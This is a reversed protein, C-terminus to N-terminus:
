NIEIGVFGQDLDTTRFFRRYNNSNITYPSFVQNTDDDIAFHPDAVLDKARKWVFQGGRQPSVRAQSILWYKFNDTYFISANCAPFETDVFRNDSSHSAQIRTFNQTPSFDEIRQTKIKKNQKNPSPSFIIQFFFFFLCNILLVKIMSEFADKFRIPMSGVSRALSADTSNTELTNKITNAILLSKLTLEETATTSPNEM